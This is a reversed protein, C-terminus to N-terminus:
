PLAGRRDDLSRGGGPLDGALPPLSRRAHLRYNRPTMAFAQHFRAYFHGLNAMGCAAALEAIPRDEMRLSAAVWAMRVDNVLDTATRGQAARVVRNLHAPSKGCLHALKVTGGPLHLPDSFVELAERLWPPLGATPDDAGPEGAMRTLDLLFTDLDILREDRAALDEAWATLRTRQRPQLRVHRPMPEDTWPWQPRHREALWAVRDPRFSVNVMTLGAAAAVLGHVDDPRIFLADGVLVPREEGNIRHTGGGSEIWFVEAFDHTHDPLGGGEDYAHRVIAYAADTPSDQFFSLALPSPAASASSTTAM